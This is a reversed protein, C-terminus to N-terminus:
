PFFVNGTCCENESLTCHKLRKLDRKEANLYNYAFSSHNRSIEATKLNPNTKWGVNRTQSLSAFLSTRSLLPLSCLTLLYYFFFRWLPFFLLRTASSDYGFSITNDGSQSSVM